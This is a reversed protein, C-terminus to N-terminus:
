LFYAARVKKMKHPWLDLKIGEMRYIARIERLGFRSTTVSYKRRTRRALDKLSQYYEHRGM